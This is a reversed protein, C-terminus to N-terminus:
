HERGGSSQQLGRQLVPPVENDTIREGREERESPKPTETRGTAERMLTNRKAPSSIIQATCNAGIIDDSALIERHAHFQSRHRVCTSREVSRGARQHRYDGSFAFRFSALARIEDRFEERPRSRCTFRLDVESRNIARTIGAVPKNSGFVNPSAHIELGNLRSFCVRTCTAIALWAYTV